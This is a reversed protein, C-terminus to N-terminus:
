PIETGVTNLAFVSVVKDFESGENVAWGLEFALARALDEIRQKQGLATIAKGSTNCVYPDLSTSFPARGYREDFMFEPLSVDPIAPLPPLWPGPTFVM